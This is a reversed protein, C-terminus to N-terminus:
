KNRKLRAVRSAKAIRRALKWSGSQKILNLEATLNAMENRVNMLEKELIKYDYKYKTYIPFLRNINAAYSVLANKDIPSLHKRGGKAKDYVETFRKSLLFDAAFKKHLYDMEKISNRYGELLEDVIQKTSKATFGRGSFNKERSQAFNDRTLYGPGGFIDYCYV